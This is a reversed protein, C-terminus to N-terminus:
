NINSINVLSLLTLHFTGTGTPCRDIQGDAFVCVNRSFRKGPESKGKNVVAEGVLIVGYLFRVFINFVTMM